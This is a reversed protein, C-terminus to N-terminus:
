DEVIFDHAPHRVTLVPCPSVRVVREAVSGLLMQSLGTRGHTGLVLLDVSHKRAYSCIEHVPNGYRTSRLIRIREWWKDLPVDAFQQDIGRELARLFRHVGEDETEEVDIPKDDPPHVVTHELQSFYDRIQEGSATYDPHLIIKEFDQLVHLLHLEAQHTEALAAGYHLAHEASPSFDTPVCIRKINLHM